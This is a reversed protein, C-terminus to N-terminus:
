FLHLVVTFLLYVPTVMTVQIGSWHHFTTGQRFNTSAIGSSATYAVNKGEEELKKAINVLLTTKGVGAQGTILINHGDLAAELAM